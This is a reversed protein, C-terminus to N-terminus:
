LHLYVKGLRTEVRYRPLSRPPPGKLVNGNLDFAGNHCPCLLSRQGEDWTLVCHMHSCIASLGVLENEAARVVWVPERGHRVLKAEGVPLDVLPGVEIVREALSQKSKPPKVFSAVVWAFGLGWLSLFGTTLWSLLRRRGQSLEGDM